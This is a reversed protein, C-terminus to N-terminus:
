FVWRTTFVLFATFIFHLMTNRTKGTSWLRIIMDTCDCLFIRFRLVSLHLGFICIGASTFKKKMIWNNSRLIAAKFNHFIKEMNAGTFCPVSVTYLSTRFEWCPVDLMWIESCKQLNHLLIFGPRAKFYFFLLYCLAAAWVTFMKM